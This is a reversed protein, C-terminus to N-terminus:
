TRTEPRRTALPVVGVHQDLQNRLKAKDVTLQRIIEEYLTVHHRLEGNARRLRALEEQHDCAAAGRAPRRGAATQEAAADLLDDVLQRYHRYLAPRSIGLRAALQTATPRGGAMAAKLLETAAARVQAETPLPQRM